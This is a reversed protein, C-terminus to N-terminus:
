ISRDHSLDSTLEVPSVAAKGVGPIITFHKKNRTLLRDGKEHVFTAAIAVDLFEIPLGEAILYANLKGIIEAIEMDLPPFM